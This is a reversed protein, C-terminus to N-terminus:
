SGSGGGEELATIVAAMDEGARTRRAAAYLKECATLVPLPAGITRATELILRANDDVNAISAQVSFDRAILKPLKGRAVDSATPGALLARQFLDLDLGARSAFTTAEALATVLSNLYTNVALKLLTAKPVEGCEFVSTGLPALLPRVADVAAVDGALMVVLRGEQAPGRSGAVPAEVYRGGAAKTDAALHRSYAPSTTGMHVLTRDRVLGGFRPTGRGLVEDIAAADALMLIVAGAEEFLAEVSAAHRAGARALVEARAPTRNWVLVPLGARVLNLAMPEGMAGLGIFGVTGHRDARNGM